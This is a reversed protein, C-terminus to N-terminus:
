MLVWFLMILLITSGVMLIGTLVELAIVKFTEWKKQLNHREMLYNIRELGKNM